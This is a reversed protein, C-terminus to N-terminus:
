PDQMLGTARGINRLIAAGTEGGFTVGTWVAASRMSQFPACFADMHERFNSFAAPEEQPKKLGVFYTDISQYNARLDYDSFWWDLNFTKEVLQPPVNKYYEWGQGVTLPSAKSTTRTTGHEKRGTSACSMIVLGGPKTMRFMNSMTEVWYPNHELCECSIAVDLSESPFDVLQGPKVLDVGNGEGLDVGTYDCNEFHMRISGNIDLSGIELVRSDSFWDSFHEKIIRIFELQAAHSM